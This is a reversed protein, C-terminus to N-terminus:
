GYSKRKGFNQSGTMEPPNKERINREFSETPLGTAGCTGDPSTPTPSSGNGM